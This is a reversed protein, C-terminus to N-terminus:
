STRRGQLSPLPLGPLPAVQNVVSPLVAQCVAPASPPASRPEVEIPVRGAPLPVWVAVSLAVPTAM